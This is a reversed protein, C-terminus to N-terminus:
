NECVRDICYRTQISRSSTMHVASWESLANGTLLESMTFSAPYVQSASLVQHIVHDFQRLQQGRAQAMWVQPYLTDFILSM